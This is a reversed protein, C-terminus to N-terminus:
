VEVIPSMIGAYVQKLLLSRRGENGAEHASEVVEDRVSTSPVNRGMRMNEVFVVDALCESAFSQTLFLFLWQSM